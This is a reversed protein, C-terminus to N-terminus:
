SSKLEVAIALTFSGFATHGERNIADRVLRQWTDWSILLLSCDKLAQHSVKPVLKEVDLALGKTESRLCGMMELKIM